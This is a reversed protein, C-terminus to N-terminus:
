QDEGNEDKCLSEPEEATPDKCQKKEKINSLTEGTLQPASLALAGFPTIPYGYRKKAGTALGAVHKSIKILASSDPFPLTSLLIDPVMASIPVYQKKGNKKGFGNELNGEYDAITIPQGILKTTLGTKMECPDARYQKRMDSYGPDAKDAITRVLRAYSQEMLKTLADYFMKWFDGLMGEFDFANKENVDLEPDPDQTIDHANGAVGMYGLCSMKTVSLLSEESRFQDFIISNQLAHMGVYRDLPLLIGLAVNAPHTPANENIPRSGISSDVSGLALLNTVIKEENLNYILTRIAERRKDMDLFERQVPSGGESINAEPRMPFFIGSHVRDYIDDLCEVDEIHEHIPVSYVLSNKVDDDFLNMWMREEVRASGLGQFSSQVSAMNYFSSRYDLNTPNDPNNLPYKDAYGLFCKKRNFLSIDSTIGITRNNPSNLQYGSEMSPHFDSFIDTPNTEAIGVGTMETSGPAVPVAPREYERYAKQGMMLRGGIQLNNKLFDYLEQQKPVITNTYFENIPIDLNGNDQIWEIPKMIALAGGTSRTSSFQREDLIPAYTRSMYYDLVMNQMVSDEKYWPSGQQRMYGPTSMTDDIVMSDYNDSRLQFYWTRAYDIARKATSIQEFVEKANDYYASGKPMRPGDRWHVRTKFNNSNPNNTPWNHIIDIMNTLCEVILEAKRQRPINRYAYGPNDSYREQEFVFERALWKYAGLKSWEFDWVASWPGTFRGIGDFYRPLTEPGEINNSWTRLMTREQDFQGNTMTNIDNIIFLVREVLEEKSVQGSKYAYDLETLIVDASLPEIAENTDITRPSPDGWNIGYGSINAAFGFPTGGSQTDPGRTLTGQPSKAAFGIDIMMRIAKSKYCRGAHWVQRAASDGYDEDTKPRGAFFNSIMKLYFKRVFDGEIQNRELNEELAQMMELRTNTDESGLLLREMDTPSIYESYLSTSPDSGINPINQFVPDSEVALYLENYIRFFESFNKIRYFKEMWFHGSNIKKQILEESYGEFAFSDYINPIVASVPMQKYGGMLNNVFESARGRESAINNVREQTSPSYSSNELRDAEQNLVHANHRHNHRAISSRARQSSREHAQARQRLEQIRMRHALEAQIYSTDNMANENEMWARLTDLDSGREETLTSDEQIIIKPYNDVSPVEKANEAIENRVREAFSAYKNDFVKTAFKEISATDINKLILSRLAKKEDDIKTIKKVTKIVKQRMRTSSLKKDIDNTIYNVMYDIMFQTNFAGKPGFNSFLFMSKFVLEMCSFKVYLGFLGSATSTQFPGPDSFDRFQPDNEPKETESKYTNLFEEVILDFNLLKPNPIYCPRGELSKGVVFEKSIDQQLQFMEDYSFYKSNKVLDSIHYNFSDSFGEYISFGDQRTAATQAILNLLYVLRETGTIDGDENADLALGGSGLIFGSIHNRVSDEEYADLNSESANNSLKKLGDIYLDAFGGPRLLKDVHKDSQVDTSQNRTQVYEEPLREKYVKNFYVSEFNTSANNVAYSVRYCDKVQDVIFPMDSYGASIRSPTNSKSDVNDPQYEAGETLVRVHLERYPSGTTATTKRTVTTVDKSVIGSLQPFVQPDETAYKEIYGSVYKEILDAFEEAKDADPTGEFSMLVAEGDAINDQFYFDMHELEERPIGISDFWLIVRLVDFPSVSRLTAIKGSRRAPLGEELNKVQTTYYKYYLYDRSNFGPDGPGTIKQNMDIFADPVSPIELNFATKVNSLLSKLAVKALRDHHPNSYPGPLDKEKLDAPLNGPLLSDFNGSSAIERLADRRNHADKMQQAIEAASVGSQELRNRLGDIGSREDCLADAVVVEELERLRDCLYPDVVQGLVRFFESIEALTGLVPKLQSNSSKVVNQVVTLVSPSAQGQLLECLENPRLVMSISDFLSSISSESEGFLTDQPIDLANLVASTKSALDAKQQADAFPNDRNRDNLKSLQAAGYQLADVCDPYSIAELINKVMECIFSMILDAFAIKLQPLVFHLPNFTPLKPLAPIDWKFKQDFEIDELGPVCKKYDCLIMQPDWKQLFERWMDEFNCAIEGFKPYVDSTQITKGKQEFFTSELLNDISGEALKEQERIHARISSKIGKHDFDIGINIGKKKGKRFAVNPTPHHFRDFFLVAPIKEMEACPNPRLFKLMEPTSDEGSTRALSFLYSVTAPYIFPDKTTFDNTGTSLEKRKGNANTNDVYVVKYIRHGVVKEVKTSLKPTGPASMEPQLKPDIPAPEEVEKVVEDYYIELQDKNNPGVKMTLGNASLFGQLAAVLDGVRKSELTPNIPPSIPPPPPPNNAFRNYERSPRPEPKNEEIFKKIEEEFGAINESADELHGRMEQVNYVGPNVLFNEMKKAANIAEQTAADREEKTAGSQGTRAKNWSNRLSDKAAKEAEMAKGKAWKKAGSKLSNGQRKWFDGSFPKGLDDNVFKKAARFGAAAAAINNPDLVNVTGGFDAAGKGGRIQNFMDKRIRISMIYPSNPRQGPQDLSEIAAFVPAAGNELSQGFLVDVKEGNLQDDLSMGKITFTFKMGSVFGRATAAQDIGELINDQGETNLQVDINGVRHQHQLIEEFLRRPLDADDVADQLPSVIPIFTRENADITWTNEKGYYEFVATVADRFMKQKIQPNEALYKEADEFGAASVSQRTLQTLYRYKVHKDVYRPPEQEQTPTKFVSGPEAGPSLGSVFNLFAPSSILEQMARNLGMEHMVKWTPEGIQGRETMFGGPMDINFSAGGVLEEAISAEISDAGQAERVKEVLPDSSFGYEGVEYIRARNDEQFQVLANETIADFEATTSTMDGIGLFYKIVHVDLGRSGAKIPLNFTIASDQDVGNADKYKFPKKITSM